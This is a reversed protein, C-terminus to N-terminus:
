RLSHALQFLSSILFKQLFVVVLIAILPSIDVGMDPLIRRIPALVPETANHIFRVIQNYPDPNVWSIIAGIIILWVYLTLAINIVTAIANIFNAIIFM